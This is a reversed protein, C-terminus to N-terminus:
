DWSGDTDIYERKPEAKPGNAYGNKEWTRVAAKWDKIKDGRIMWGKMAYYDVFREADVSNGRQLCYARVDEATPIIFVTRARSPKAKGTSTEEGQFGRDTDENQNQDQQTAKASVAREDLPVMRACASRTYPNPYPDPNPYPNSQIVPANAHLQICNSEISQTQACVDEPPEPYKSKLNRITQHKEWSPLRLYPKDEVMYTSVLGASVLRQLTSAILKDTLNEKLPLLKARLIATRADMRGYDDANVMLRYFFVEEFWTLCDISSSTCISEKIIRNPM